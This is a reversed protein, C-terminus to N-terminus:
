CSNFTVGSLSTPTMTFTNHMDLDKTIPDYTLESALIFLKPTVYVLGFKKHWEIREELSDEGYKNQWEQALEYANM